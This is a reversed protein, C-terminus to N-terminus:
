LFFLIYPARSTTKPPANYYNKFLDHLHLLYDDHVTGQEFKLTANVGGKLKRVCLDGLILGVLIDKQETTLIFQTREAQTLYKKKM